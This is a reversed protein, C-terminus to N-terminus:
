HLILQATAYATTTTTCYMNQELNWLVQRLVTSFMDNKISNIAIKFVVMFNKDHFNLMKCHM